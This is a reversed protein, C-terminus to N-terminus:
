SPEGRLIAKLMNKFMEEPNQLSVKLHINVDPQSNSKLITLKELFLLFYLNLVDVGTSPQTM